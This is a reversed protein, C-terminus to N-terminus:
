FSLVQDIKTDLLCLSSLIYLIVLDFSIFNLLLLLFMGKVPCLCCERKVEPTECAKCVWSTFDRVHRAGYCEQHVAIQCRFFFFDGMVNM